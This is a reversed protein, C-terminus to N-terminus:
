RSWSAKRKMEGWKKEKSYLWRFIGQLRWITNLQRYGFNEIFAAIILIIIYAREKYINFSLAELLLANISVFLGLGVSLIFFAATADLSILGSIYAVIIFLYGAFEIVPGFWEFILFFPFALWGVAGSKVSFLLNKHRYLSDSLGQQWRVRQNKLTKLDEPAETWCIPDPLFTIRYPIKEKRYKNHLRVILEMDEGVTDTRYGGVAIVAEKRFIGFAGSIILLANIFSWGLRGFLFARLYEMIQVLSLVNSPLGVRALFGDIVECGNAVRITGGTAITRKDEMFPKAAQYLSDRQLISDADIGCFLPFRSYNIGCNLADSKGGNIKDVVILNPYDVTHYISKVQKTEIAVRCVEPFPILSFSAMLKALTGDKSGDNVVIIEYEPYELQLLSRISVVITSEENYAPVIITVPPEFGTYDDIRVDINSFRLYRKLSIFSAMNLLFYSGSHIVFYFIFFWHLMYAAGQLDIQM